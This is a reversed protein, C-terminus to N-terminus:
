PPLCPKFNYGFGRIPQLRHAVGRFKLRIYDDQIDGHGCKASDFGGHADM